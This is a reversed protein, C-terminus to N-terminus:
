FDWLSFYPGSHLQRTARGPLSMSALQFVALAATAYSFACTAVIAKTVFQFTLSCNVAIHIYHCYSIVVTYLGVCFLLQQTGADRM